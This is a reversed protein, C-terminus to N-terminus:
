IGNYLHYMFSYVHLYISENNSKHVLTYHCAKIFNSFFNMMGKANYSRRFDTWVKDTNFVYVFVYIVHKFKSM